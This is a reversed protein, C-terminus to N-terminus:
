NSGLASVYSASFRTKTYALTLPFTGVLMPHLNRVTLKWRDCLNKISILTLLFLRGHFQKIVNILKLISTKELLLFCYSDSKDLYYKFLYKLVCKIKALM